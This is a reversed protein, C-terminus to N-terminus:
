TELLTKNLVSKREISKKQELSSKALITNSYFRLIKDVHYHFLSKKPFFSKSSEWAIIFFRM